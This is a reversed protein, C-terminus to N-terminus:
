NVGPCTGFTCTGAPSNEQFLLALPHWKEERGWDSSSSVHLFCVRVSDTERALVQTGQLQIERYVEWRFYSCGAPLGPCSWCAELTVEKTPISPSVGCFYCMLEQLWSRLQSHRSFGHRQHAQLQWYCNIASLWCSSQSWWSYLRYCSCDPM